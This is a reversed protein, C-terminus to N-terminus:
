AYSPQGFQPLSWGAKGFTARFPAFETFTESCVAGGGSRFLHHCKKFILAGHFFRQRLCTCTRISEESHSAMVASGM